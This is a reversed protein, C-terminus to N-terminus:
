LWKLKHFVHSYKQGMKSLIILLVKAENKIYNKFYHKIYLMPFVFSSSFDYLKQM